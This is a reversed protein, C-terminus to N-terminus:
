LARQSDVLRALHGHRPDLAYPAPAVPAPGLPSATPVAPDLQLQAGLFARMEADTAAAARARLQSFWWAVEPSRAAGLALTAAHVSSRFEASPPKAGDMRALRAELEARSPVSQAGLAAALVLLLCRLALTM